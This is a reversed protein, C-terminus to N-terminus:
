LTKRGDLIGEDDFSNSMKTFTRSLLVPNSLTNDALDSLELVYLAAELANEEFQGFLWPRGYNNDKTGVWIRGSTNMVYENRLAEDVSCVCFM